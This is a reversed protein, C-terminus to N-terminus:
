RSLELEVDKVAAELDAAIPELEPIMDLLNAEMGYGRRTRRLDKLADQIPEQLIELKEEATLPM